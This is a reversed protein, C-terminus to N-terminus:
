KLYLNMRIHYSPQFHRYPYSVGGEIIYPSLTHKSDDIGSATINIKFTELPASDCDIGIDEGCILLDREIYEGEDIGIYTCPLEERYNLAYYDECIASEKNSLYKCDDHEGYNEAEPDVCIGEERKKLYDSCLMEFIPQHYDYGDWEGNEGLTHRGVNIGANNIVNIKFVTNKYNIIHHCKTSPIYIQYKFIDNSKYDDNIIYNKGYPEQRTYLIIRDGKQLNEVNCRGEIEIINKNIVKATSEECGTIKRPNLSKIKISYSHRGGISIPIPINLIVSPYVSSLGGNRLRVRIIPPTENNDPVVVPTFSSSYLEHAYIYKYESVPSFNGKDINLTGKPYHAGLLVADYYDIETQIGHDPYEPLGVIRIQSIRHKLKINLPNAGYNPTYNEIKQYLFEKTDDGFEYPISLDTSDPLYSSNFSMAYVTYKGGDLILKEGESIPFLQGDDGIQYDVHKVHLNTESDYVLIRVKAGKTLPDAPQIKSQFDLSSKFNESEETDSVEEIEVYYDDNIKVARTKESHLKNIILSNGGEGM